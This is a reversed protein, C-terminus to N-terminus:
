ARGKGRGRADASRAGRGAPSCATTTRRHYLKPVAPPATHWSAAPSGRIRAGLLLVGHRSDVRELEVLDIVLDLVQARLGLPLGARRRARAGICLVGPHELRDGGEPGRERALARDIRDDALQHADLDGTEVGASVSEGHAIGPGPMCARRFGLDRGDVVLAGIEEARPLARRELERLLEGDVVLLDIVGQPRPQAALEGLRLQDLQDSVGGEVDAEAAEVLDDPQLWRLPPRPPM